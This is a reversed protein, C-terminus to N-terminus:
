PDVFTCNAKILNYLDNSNADYEANICINDIFNLVRINRLESFDVQIIKLSNGTFYAEELLLNNKFLNRPLLELRNWRVDIQKLRTNKDFTREDLIKLNNKYLVFIELNSLDWLTEEGLTEIDNKYIQLKTLNELNKFNSRKPFKFNVVAVVFTKLGKLVKGIGDPLYIMTGNEFVIREIDPDTKGPIHSINFSIEKFTESPNNLDLVDCSYSFFILNKCKM